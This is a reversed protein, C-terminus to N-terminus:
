LRWGFLWSVAGVVTLVLGFVLEYRRDEDRREEWSRLRVRIRLIPSGLAWDGLSLLGGALMGLAM